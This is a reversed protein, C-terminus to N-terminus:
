GYVRVEGWTAYWKKQTKAEKEVLAAWNKMENVMNAQKQQKVKM